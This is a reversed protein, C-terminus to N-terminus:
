NYFSLCGRDRNLGEHLCNFIAILRQEEIRRDTTDSIPGKLITIGMHDVSHGPTNFHEGIPVFVNRDRITQRHGNIRGRLTQSTEGIYRAQPCIKCRILYIVNHSTCTFHGKPSFQPKGNTTPIDQITDILRCTQCRPSQCPYTGNPEGSPLKSNVLIQKLNRPQKFAIVPTSPFLERTKPNELLMPQLDKAIKKLKNLQPNYTVVLPIRDTQTKEKYTLLNERPINNAKSMEQNILRAKYGLDSFAGRLDNTQKKRTTSDSCIRNYRITQSYVISQKIHPPHFSQPHLYTYRDTPKRYIMTELKNDKLITTTDLFHISTDSFDMTLKISPNLNCFKQHFKHLEEVGHTWIGFCDDIFRVYFLPLKDTTSFLKEELHSMFINAYQPAMKTGMATGKTQIYFKNPEDFTFYNHTLIFESLKIITEPQLPLSEKNDNLIKALAELGDKHPINSYLSVVDLSFIISNPPLNTIQRIKNLFDTTDQIYSPIEKVM